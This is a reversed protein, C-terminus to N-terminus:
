LVQEALRAMLGMEDTCIVSVPISSGGSITRSKNITMENRHEDLQINLFALPRVIRERLEPNREMATATLILADIGGMVATAGAVARQISSLFAAIAVEADHEGKGERYLATKLDATGCFGKLGGETHIFGPAATIDKENVELMRVLAGPDLDGARSSMILGSAPTYGMTTFVSKGKAVATVSTGSGVHVVVIRAPLVPVTTGFLEVVSQVSLGHYGFRRIDYELSDHVSYRYQHEPISSHFASDSVGVMHAHGLLQQAAAVEELLPTAHLPVANATAALRGLFDADIARHNMFYTGPAVVRFAVQKIDAVSTIVKARKAEGLVEHLAARYSHSTTTSCHTRESGVEVCRGIGEATKEFVVTFRKVGNDYLAYKKSSSGPNIVLTVM